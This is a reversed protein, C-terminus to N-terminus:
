KEKKLNPSKTFFGTSVRAGGGGGGKYFLNM